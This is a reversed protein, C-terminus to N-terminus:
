SWRPIIEGMGKRGLYSPVCSQCMHLCLLHVSMIETEPLANTQIGQQCSAALVGMGGAARLGQWNNGPSAGDALTVKVSQGSAWQQCVSLRTCSCAAGPACWLAGPVAPVTDLM